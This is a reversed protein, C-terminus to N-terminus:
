GASFSDLKQALQEIFMSRHRFHRSNRRIDDDQDLANFEEDSMLCTHLWSLINEMVYNDRKPDPYYNLAEHIDILPISGGTLRSFLGPRMVKLTCVASILPEHLQANPKETLLMIALNSYIRELERLSCNLQTGLANFYAAWEGKNFGYQHALYKCYKEINGDRGKKKPLTAEISIFKQLYTHADINAGYTSKISEQLQSKNMVLLFNVNPVSFLHKIKELMEVAFSPRCRDLEDIIITLPYESPIKLGGPITSLFSKFHDISEREAKHNTLRDKIYKEASDSIEKSIDEGINKLDDIDVEKIVGASIARIGIKASLSLVHAGVNKAKDIFDKSKKPPANASVYDTIAGAVVMFADDVYDSAFADIYINPVEEEDLIKQWTKVFTSKGEGWNGDLGIVLPDKSNKVINALAIGFNKRGFIDHDLDHDQIPIPQLVIKM